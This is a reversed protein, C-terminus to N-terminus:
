SAIKLQYNNLTIQMQMFKENANIISVKIDLIHFVPDLLLPRHSLLFGLKHGSTEQNRYLVAFVVKTIFALGLSRQAGSHTEQRSNQATLSFFNTCQCHSEYHHFFGYISDFRLGM